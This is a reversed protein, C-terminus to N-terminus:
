FSTAPIDLAEIRDLSCASGGKFLILVTSRKSVVRNREDLDEMRERLGSLGLFLDLDSLSCTRQVQYTEEQREESAESILDLQFLNSSVKSKAM